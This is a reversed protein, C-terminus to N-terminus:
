IFAWCKLKKKMTFTSAGSEEASILNKSLCLLSALNRMADERILRSQPVYRILTPRCLLSTLGFIPLFISIYTQKIQMLGCSLVKISM